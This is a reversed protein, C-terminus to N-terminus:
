ATCYGNGVLAVAMRGYSGQLQNIIGTNILEQFFDVVEDDCMEGCEYKIIKEVIDPNLAM